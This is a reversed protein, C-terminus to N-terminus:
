SYNVMCSKRCLCIIRDYKSFFSVNFSIWCDISRCLDIKFTFYVVVVFNFFFLFVRFKLWVIKRWGISLFFVLCFNILKILSSRLTIILLFIKLDFVIVNCYKCVCVCVCRNLFYMRRNSQLPCLFLCGLQIFCIGNNGSFFQKKKPFFYCREKERESDYDNTM